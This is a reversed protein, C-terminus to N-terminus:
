GSSRSRSRAGMVFGPWGRSAVPCGPIAQGMPCWQMSMQSPCAKSQRSRRCRCRGCGCCARTRPQSGSPGAVTWLSRSCPLLGLSSQNGVGGLLVGRSAEWVVGDHMFAKLEGCDIPVPPPTLVAPTLRGRELSYWRRRSRALVSGDGRLLVRCFPEEVREDVGAVSVFQGQQVEYLGRGSTVFLRGDAALTPVGFPLYMEMGELSLREVDHGDAVRVLGNLFTNMWFAGDPGGDSLVPQGLLEGVDVALPGSDEVRWLKEHAVYLTEGVSWLMPITAARTTEFRWSRFDGDRYRILYNPEGAMWLTGDAAVALDYVRDTPLADIDSHRLVDFSLGDFRALGGYTGLWLTGDRTQVIDAVNDLPLGDEVTWQEAGWGPSSPHVSRALLGGSGGSLAAWFFSLMFLTRVVGM